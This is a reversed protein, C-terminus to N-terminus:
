PADAPASGDATASPSTGMRLIDSQKLIRGHGFWRAVDREYAERSLQGSADFLEPRSQKLRAGLRDIVEALEAEAEAILEDRSRFEPSSTDAVTTPEVSDGSDVSHAEGRM